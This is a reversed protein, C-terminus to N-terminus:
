SFEILPHAYGVRGGEEVLIRAVIGAQPALVETLLGGEELWAVPQGAEVQDGCGVKQELRQPHALRILGMGPALVQVAAPVPPQAVAPLATRTRGSGAVLSISHGATEFEIAALGRRHLLEAVQELMEINM